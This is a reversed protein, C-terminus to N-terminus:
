TNASGSAVTKTYGGDNTTGRVEDSREQASKAALRKQNCHDATALVAKADYTNTTADSGELTAM